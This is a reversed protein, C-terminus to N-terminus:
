CHIYSREQHLLRTKKAKSPENPSCSGVKATTSRCFIRSDAQNERAHGLTGRLTKGDMATHTLHEEEQEQRVLRSPEEGCKEVARAKLIVQAVAQAIEEGSCKALTYTANVPFDKPWNLVQKVWQKRERVWDIIGSITTEGAMKGLLILTLILPLPYRKGKDKRGDKVNEFAKYLSAEDIVISKQDVQAVTDFISLNM